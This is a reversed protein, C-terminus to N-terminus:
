ASRKGLSAVIPILMTSRYTEKMDMNINTMIFGYLYMSSGAVYLSLARASLSQHSFTFSGPYRKTTSPLLRLDLRRAAHCAYGLDESERHSAVCHSDFGIHHDILDPKGDIFIDSTHGLHTSPSRTNNYYLVLLRQAGIRVWFGDTCDQM